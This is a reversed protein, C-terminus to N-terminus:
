LSRICSVHKLSFKWSCKRSNGCPVLRVLFSSRGGFGPACQRTHDGFSSGGRAGWLEATMSALQISPRAKATKRVSHVGLDSSVDAHDFRSERSSEPQLSPTVM